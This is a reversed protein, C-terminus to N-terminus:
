KATEALVETVFRRVRRDRGVSALPELLLTGVGHTQSAHNIVLAVETEAPDDLAEYHAEGILERDVVTGLAGRHANDATTM